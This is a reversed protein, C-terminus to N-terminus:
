KIQVMKKGGGTHRSCIPPERLEVYVGIRQKCVPCEWTAVPQKAKAM